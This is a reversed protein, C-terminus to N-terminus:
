AFVKLHCHPKGEVSLSNFGIFAYFLARLSCSTLPDGVEPLDLVDVVEVIWKRGFADM